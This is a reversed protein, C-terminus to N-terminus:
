YYYEKKKKQGNKNRKNKAKICDLVYKQINLITMEDLNTLNLQFEEDEQANPDALNILDPYDEPELEGIKHVLEEKQKVTLPAKPRTLKVRKVSGQHLLSNNINQGKRKRVEFLEQKIREINNTLMDLETQLEKKEREKEKDMDEPTQTSRSALEKKWKEIMEGFMKEFQTLLQKALVTIQAEDANYLIANDFVLRVHVNFHMTNALSGALLMEKITGLDCPKKVIKPYDPINLLKYDVPTNFPVAIEQDMLKELLVLCDILEENVVGGSTVIRTNNKIENKVTTASVEGPHLWNCTAIERCNGNLFNPCINNKDDEVEMDLDNHFSPEM